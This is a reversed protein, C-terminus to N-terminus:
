FCWWYFWSYFGTLHKNNEPTNYSCGNSKLFIHTNYYCRFKLLTLALKRGIHNFINRATLLPRLGEFSEIFKNPWCHRLTELVEAETSVIATHM